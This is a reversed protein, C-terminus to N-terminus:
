WTSNRLKMLLQIFSVHINLQSTMLLSLCSTVELVLISYASCQYTISTANKLIYIVVSSFLNNRTTLPFWTQLHRAFANIMGLYGRNKISTLFSMELRTSAELKKKNDFLFNLIPNGFWYNHTCALAFGTIRTNWIFIVSFSAKKRQERWTEVISFYEIPNQDLILLYKQWSVFNIKPISLM